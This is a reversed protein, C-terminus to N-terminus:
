PPPPWKLLSPVNTTPSSAEAAKMYASHVANMAAPEEATVVGTHSIRVILPLIGGVRWIRRRKLSTWESGVVFASALESTSVLAHRHEPCVSAAFIAPATKALRCSLPCDADRTTVRSVIWFRACDSPIVIGNQTGYRLQIQM